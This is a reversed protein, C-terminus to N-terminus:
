RLASCIWLKERSRCMDISVHIFAISFFSGVISAVKAMRNTGLININKKQVLFFDFSPTLMLTWSYEDYM